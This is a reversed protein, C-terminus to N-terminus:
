RVAYTILIIQMFMEMTTLINLLTIKRKLMTKMQFSLNKIKMYYMKYLEDPRGHVQSYESKRIYHKNWERKFRNLKKKIVGTFCFKAYEKELKNDPNYEGSEVM